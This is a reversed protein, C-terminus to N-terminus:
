KWKSGNVSSQLLAISLSISKDLKPTWQTRWPIKCQYNGWYKPTRWKEYSEAEDCTSDTTSYETAATSGSCSHSVTEHLLPDLTSVDFMSLQFVRSLFAHSEFCNFLLFFPVQVFNHSHVTKTHRSRISLWDDRTFGQKLLMLSRTVLWTM